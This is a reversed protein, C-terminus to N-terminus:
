PLWANWRSTPDEKGEEIAKRISDWTQLIEVQEEILLDDEKPVEEDLYSISYMEDGDEFVVGDTVRRYHYHDEGIMGPETDIYQESYGDCQQEHYMKRITPEAMIWKRMTPPAQQLEDIGYLPRITDAQWMYNVQRTVARALRAADSSVAAEFAEQAKQVFTQGFGIVTQSARQLEQGMFDDITHNRVGYSVTNLMDSDGFSVTAM